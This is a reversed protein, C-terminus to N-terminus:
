YIDVMWITYSVDEITHTYPSLGSTTDGGVRAAAKISDDAGLVTM